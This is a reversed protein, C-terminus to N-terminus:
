NATADGVGWRPQNRHDEGGTKGSATAKKTTRGSPSRSRDKINGNDTKGKGNSKGNSTKATM